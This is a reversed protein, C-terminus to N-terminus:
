PTDGQMTEGAILGLAFAHGLGNGPLYGAAGHGSIGAATAGAALLGPVVGGDRRLVRASADVVLGGQTHALAGTVRAAHYPPVLAHLAEVRGFGDAAGAVVAAYGALTAAVADGPLGFAAALAAADAAVVVHGQAYADRYTKLELAAAHIRGDFVEVATGGAQALVHAGFESPGMAEDAFRVGAANVVIAGYSTLGPGLRGAGGPLTHGQGQYSDMFALSGGLATGWEHARGDNPGRGIYVADLIEPAHRALLARNAAFGGTALVTWRGRMVGAGTEAGVVRGGEVLLGTAETGLLVTIGAEARVCGLLLRALGAGGEPDAEHLRPASHGPAELSAVVRVPLGLGDAVFDAVDASRGTVAASIAPDVAGHAKARIDADWQAASDEIGAARQFRTGAASFLGSSVVLNSQMGDAGDVLAVRLGLKAARLAAMLGAAGAGLVVGDYMM